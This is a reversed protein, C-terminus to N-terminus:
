KRIIKSLQRDLEQLTEISGKKYATNEVDRNIMFVGLGITVWGIAKWLHFVKFTFPSFTIKTDALFLFLVVLIVSYIIIEKM